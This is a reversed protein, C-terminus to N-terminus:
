PYKIFASFFYKIMLFVLDVVFINISELDAFVLGTEKFFLSLNHNYSHLNYLYLGELQGHLALGWKWKQGLGISFDFYLWVIQM